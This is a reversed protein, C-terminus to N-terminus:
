LGLWRQWRPKRPQDTMFDPKWQYEIPIGREEAVAILRRLQSPPFYQANTVLQETSSRITLGWILQFVIKLDPTLAIVRPPRGRAIGLWTRVLIRDPGFAFTVLGRWLLLWILVFGVLAFPFALVGVWWSQSAIPHIILLRM